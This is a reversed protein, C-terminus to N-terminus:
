DRCNLLSFLRSVPSSSSPSVMNHGGFDLFLIVDDSLVDLKTFEEKFLYHALSETETHFFIKDPPEQFTTAVIDRYVSEFDLDWQSPISLGIAAISFRQRTCAETINKHLVTFLERLGSELRYRLAPDDARELLPKLVEYEKVLEDKAGALVYMGFKLSIPTRDPDLKEGVYVPGKEFPYGISSFDGNEYRKTQYNRRTNEVPYDRGTEPNWLYARTSTSGLDIGVVSCGLRLNAQLRVIYSPPSIPVVCVPTPQM